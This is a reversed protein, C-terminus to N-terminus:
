NGLVFTLVVLLVVIVGSTLGIRRIETGMFSYVLPKEPAQNRRPRTSRSAALAGVPRVVTAAGARQAAGSRAPAPNASRPATATTVAQGEASVPGEVDSSATVAPDDIFAQGPRGPKRKRDRLRAQRSAAKHSKSPM